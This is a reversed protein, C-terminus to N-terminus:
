ENSFSTKRSLLYMGMLIFPISLIQGSLVSDSSGHLIQKVKFYESLLRVSATSLLIMGTVKGHPWNKARFKYLYVGALSLLLYALAEYLQVPHRPIEDIRKFVFAWPVHSPLGLVESNMLNGIRLLAGTWMAAPSVVDLLWLFTINKYQRSFLWMSIIIGLYGGHSAMGGKWFFLVELPHTLYHIPDYFLCHGLRGGLFMGLILYNLLKISDYETLAKETKLIKTVYLKGLLFGIILLVPYWRVQFGNYEFLSPDPNWNM